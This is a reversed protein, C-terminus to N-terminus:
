NQSPSKKGLEGQRVNHKQIRNKKRSDTPGPEFHNDIFAFSCLYVNGPRGGFFNGKDWLVKKQSMLCSSSGNVTMSFLNKKPFGIILDNLVMYQSFSCKYGPTNINQLEWHFFFGARVQLSRLLLILQLLGAM